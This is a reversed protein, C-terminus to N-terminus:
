RFVFLVWSIGFLGLVWGDSIRSFPKWNYGGGGLPNYEHGIGALDQDHIVIGIQAVRQHLL